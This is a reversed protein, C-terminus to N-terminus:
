AARIKAVKTESFSRVTQSHLDVLETKNQSTLYGGALVFVVPIGANECWTSVTEEREKLSEVGIIPYPDMGANYILLETDRPIKSLLADLTSLYEKESPSDLIELENGIAPKYSDFRNVSLDLHLVNECQKLLSHTGGGCHADVDLVVITGDTTRKRLKLQATKVGIALGNVTCFGRGRGYGAHHLGSSLSGANVTVGNESADMVHHVGAIVGATSNVAMEWVGPDWEFGQSEALNSPNGTSIAEVYEKSHILRILREAEDKSANPDTLDIGYKNKLEAAVWSAKRTTDFSHVPAIYSENYFIKAEFCRLQEHDTHTL